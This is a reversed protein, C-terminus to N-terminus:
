ITKEVLGLELGIQTARVSKVTKRNGKAVQGSIGKGGGSWISHPKGGQEGVLAVEAADEGGGAGRERREGAEVGEEDDGGGVM